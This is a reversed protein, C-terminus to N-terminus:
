KNGTIMLYDLGISHNSQDVWSVAVRVRVLQNNPPLEYTGLQTALETFASVHYQIGGETIIQEPYTQMSPSNNGSYDQRVKEVMESALNTATLRERVTLNSKYGDTMASLIPILAILIIATAILVEILTVGHEDRIFKVFM